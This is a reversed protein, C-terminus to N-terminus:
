ISLDVSITIEGDKTEEIKFAKQILTRLGKNGEPLYAWRSKLLNKATIEMGNFKMESADRPDIRFSRAEHQELCHQAVFGVAPDKTILNTMNKTMKPIRKEVKKM